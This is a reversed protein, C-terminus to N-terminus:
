SNIRSVLPGLFRKGNTTFWANSYCKQEVLIVFTAVGLGGLIDVFYHQKTTLTSIFILISWVWYAFHLSRGRHRISYACVATIAVHMSPFCNNPTDGYKVLNMLWEILFFQGDPYTPRPYCTPFFSFFLGSVVLVTFATRALSNFQDLSRLSFIIMIALIYDSLYIVFTWPLLPVWHDIKWMPLFQPPFIPYFNPGVYFIFYFVTFLILIFFKYKPSAEKPNKM